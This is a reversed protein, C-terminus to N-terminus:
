RLPNRPKAPQERLDAGCLDCELADAPLMKSCTPCPVLRETKKRRFLRMVPRDDRRRAEEM